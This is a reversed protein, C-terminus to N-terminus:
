QEARAFEGYYKREAEKRARVADDYNKYRGLYIRKKKYGITVEYSHRKSIFCVGSVGSKNNDRVASNWVNEMNSCVRLNSKRNDLTNGNIHDVVLGDPCNTILRHISITKWKGNKCSVNCVYDHKPKHRIHWKLEIVKELDDVDFIFSLGDHCYM